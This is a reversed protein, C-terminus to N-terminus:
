KVEIMAQKRLNALFQKSKAQFQETFLAERAERSAAGEVKKETRSCLAFM